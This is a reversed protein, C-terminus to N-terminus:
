DIVLVGVICPDNEPETDNLVVNDAVSNGEDFALADADTVASGIPDSAPIVTPHIM